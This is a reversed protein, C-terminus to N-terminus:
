TEELKVQIAPTPTTATFTIPPAGGNANTLKVHVGTADPALLATRIGPTVTTWSSKGNGSVQCTLTNGNYTVDGLTLTAYRYTIGKAIPKTTYYGSAGLNITRLGFDGSAGSSSSADYYNLDYAFEQWKGSGPGPIVYKTTLAGLGGADLTGTFTDAVSNTPHDLTFQTGIAQAYVTCDRVQFDLTLANDFLITLLESESGLRQEIEQIKKTVDTEFDGIQIHADGVVITDASQPYEIIVREILFDAAVSNFTDVVRVLQGAELDYVGVLNLETNLFPDKYKDLLRRAYQEADEKTMVQSPNFTKKIEGYADISAQNKILIPIPISHTVLVKVYHNATWAYGNSTSLVLKKNEFDVSYDYVTTSGSVGGVRLTTPPTAADAYVKVSVPKFSLPVTGNNGAVFGTTVNLQGSTETEVDQTAGQIEVKNLLQTADTKWKPLNSVNTGVTLIASAATTGRPRYYVLNDTPSYYFYYDVLGALEKLKDFVDEHRCVFKTLLEPTSTGTATVSTADCTLTTYNNILDKFIESNQGASADINKDYSKTVEKKVADYLTDYCDLKYSSGQREVTVIEGRFVYQETGVVVGRKLTVAMGATPVVLTDVTASLYLIASSIEEGEIKTVTWKMRKTTVDIANITVADLLRDGM